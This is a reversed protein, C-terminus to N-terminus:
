GNEKEGTIELGLMHAMGIAMGKFQEETMHMIWSKKVETNDFFRISYDQDSTCEAFVLCKEYMKTEITLTSGKIIDPNLTIRDPIHVENDEINAANKITNKLANNFFGLVDIHEGTKKLSSIPMMQPVTYDQSYLSAWPNGDVGNTIGLIIERKKDIIDSIVIDGVRISTTDEAEDVSNMRSFAHLTKLFEGKCKNCILFKGNRPFAVSTTGAHSFEINTMEGLSEHISLCKDCKYCIM